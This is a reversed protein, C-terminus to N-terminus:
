EGNEGGEDIDGCGRGGKRQIEVWWLETCISSGLLERSDLESDLEYKGEVFGVLCEVAGGELM